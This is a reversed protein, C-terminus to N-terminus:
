KTKENNRAVNRTIEDKRTANHKPTIEDNRRAMVGLSIVFLRFFAMRFSSIAFLHLAFLRLFFFSIVFHCLGAVM